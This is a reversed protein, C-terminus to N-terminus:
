AARDQPPIYYRGRGFVGDLKALSAMTERARREREAEDAALRALRSEQEAILEGVSSGVPLRWLYKIARWMM